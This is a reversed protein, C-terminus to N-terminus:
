DVPQTSTKRGNNMSKGENLFYKDIYYSVKLYYTDLYASLRSYGKLIQYTGGDMIVYNKMFFTRKVDAALEEEFSEIDEIYPECWELFATNKDSEDMVFVQEWRLKLFKFSLMHQRYKEKTVKIDDYRDEHHYYDLLEKIKKEEQTQDKKRIQMLEETIVEEVYPDEEYMFDLEDDFLLEELPSQQPMEFREIVQEAKIEQSIKENMTQIQSSLLAVEQRYSLSEAELETYRDVLDEYKEQWDDIRDYSAQKAELDELQEKLITNAVKALQLESTLQDITEELQEQEETLEQRLDLQNRLEISLSKIKKNKDELELDSTVLKKQTNKLQIAVKHRENSELILEKEAEKLQEDLATYDTQAQKILEAQEEELRTLSEKLHENNNAYQDSLRKAEMQRIRYDSNEQLTQKLREEIESVKTVREADLKNKKLLDNLKMNALDLQRNMEYNTTVEETLVTVEKKLAENEKILEAIKQDQSDGFYDSKVEIPENEVIEIAEVPVVVSKPVTVPAVDELVFEAQLEKQQTTLRQILAEQQEIEQNLRKIQEDEEIKIEKANSTTHKRSKSEIKMPIKTLKEPGVVKLTVKDLCEGLTVQGTDIINKIESKSLDDPVSFSIYLRVMNDTKFQMFAKSVPYKPLLREWEKLMVKCVISLHSTELYDNQWSFEIQNKMEKTNEIKKPLIELDQKTVRVRERKFIRYTINYYSERM